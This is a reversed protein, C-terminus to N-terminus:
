ILPNKSEPGGTGGGLMRILSFDDLTVDDEMKNRKLQEQNLSALPAMRYKAMITVSDSPPFVCM